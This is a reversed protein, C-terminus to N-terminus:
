PAPTRTVSTIVVPTYPEDNGDTDVAAIADVVDLGDVVVGFVAYGPNSDNEYNLFSNNKHNIFFQSTASNPDNTRAMALTGRDNSLGNNSEIDISSRSSKESGSETYGGGQIMFNSIVRHFVTAGDGDRGDYFGDDAYQEFNATTIPANVPDLEIHITGLTTVITFQNALVEAAPDTAESGNGQSTNSNDNASDEQTEESGCASLCLISLAVFCNRTFTSM